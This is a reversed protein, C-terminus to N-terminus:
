VKKQKKKKSYNSYIGLLVTIFVFIFYVILLMQLGTLNLISGLSFIFVAFIFGIIVPYISTFVAIKWGAETAITIITAICPPTLAMFFIMAAAHLSTWGSEMDSIKQSLEKSEVGDKYISGLTSVTNEKAAFSSLLSVNIRWNFGAYKTVPELYIGLKGLMSGMLNEEHKKLRLEKRSRDIGKLNKNMKSAQANFLTSSKYNSDGDKVFSFYVPNASQWAKYFDYYILYNQNNISGYSTILNNLSKNYDNFYREFNEKESDYINVKGNNYVIFFEPNIRRYKFDIREKDSDDKANRLSSRYRSSYDFYEAIIESNSFTNIYPNEINNLNHELMITNINNEFNEKEIKNVGPYNLFFYIVAMVVVIVTLVKKIFIWTREIVRRSVNNFSPIHYPPMEMVFPATEKNKLVTISLLKSVTLAIFITITSILFMTLGSSEKFFVDIMLLYFPIKALCNMLPTVMITANRVKEDKISRTAMVGPVACGGVYLGALMLPLASQGHLGYPKFVRDLIFAIRAMYGSDEMIAVLAFLIIFIPIYNLVAMIGQVMWIVFDRIFPDNLFGEAPLINVISKQIGGLIPWWYDTLKYGGVIALEYVAFLTLFLVIPGLFRNCVFSDIIDTITRKGHGSSKLCSNVINEANLFRKEAVIVQSPVKNKEMIEEKIKEMKKKESM